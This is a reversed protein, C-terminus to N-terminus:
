RYARKKVLPLRRTLKRWRAMSAAGLGEAAARLLEPRSTQKWGALGGLVRDTEFALREAFGANLSYEIEEWGADMRETREQPLLRALDIRREAFVAVHCDGCTM